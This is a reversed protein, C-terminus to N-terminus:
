QADPFARRFLALVMNFMIAQKDPPANPSVISGSSPAPKGPAAPILDKLPPAFPAYSVDGTDSVIKQLPKPPAPMDHGADVSIQVNALTTEYNGVAQTNERVAQLQADRVALMDSYPAGEMFNHAIRKGTADIYFLTVMDKDFQIM